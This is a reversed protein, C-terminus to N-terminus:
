GGGNLIASMDLMRVERGLFRRKLEHQTKVVPASTAKPVVMVGDDDASVIDGPSSPLRVVPQNIVVLTEKDTGKTFLGYSFVEFGLERIASGM